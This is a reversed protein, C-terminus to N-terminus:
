IFFLSAITNIELLVIPLAIEGVIKVRTLILPFYREAEGQAIKNGNLRVSASKDGIERRGTRNCICIGGIEM